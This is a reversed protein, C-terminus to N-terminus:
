GPGMSFYLLVLKGRFDSLAVSRGDASPLTFAPAPDGVSPFRPSNSESSPQTGTCAGIAIAALVTAVFAVKRM